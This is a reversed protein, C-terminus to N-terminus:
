IMVDSELALKECSSQRKDTASCITRIPMVDNKSAALYGAISDWLNGTITTQAVLTINDFDIDAAEELSNIVTAKGEAWGVIGRVEPHTADGIVVVNRGEKHAKEVIKHIKSVYPCTADVIKLNADYAEDYFSKPEGHSRIILISGPEVSALSDSINLGRKCLNDTVSKNHILPGCTYVKIDTDKYKDILEETKRIAESVGFCFGSHEAIKIEM